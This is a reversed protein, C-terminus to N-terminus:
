RTKELALLSFLCKFRHSYTRLMTSVLLSHSTTSPQATPSMIHTPSLSSPLSQTISLSAGASTPFQTLSSPPDIATAPTTPASSPERTPQMSSFASSLTWPPTPDSPPVPFKTNAAESIISAEKKSESSEVSSISAM